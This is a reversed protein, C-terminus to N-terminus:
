EIHIVMCWNLFKSGYVQGQVRMERYKLTNFGPKAFNCWKAKSCKYLAQNCWGVILSCTKYLLRETPSHVTLHESWDVRAPRLLCQEGQKQRLVSMNKCGHGNRPAINPRHPHNHCWINVPLVSQKNLYVNESHPRHANGWPNFTKMRECYKPHLGAKNNFFSHFDWIRCYPDKLFDQWTNTIMM